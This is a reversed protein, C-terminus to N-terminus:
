SICPYVVVDMTWLIQNRITVTLWDSWWPICYNRDTDLWSRHDIRTLLWTLNHDISDGYFGGYFVMFGYFCTLTLNSDGYFWWLIVGIDRRIDRRASRRASSWEATLMRQGPEAAHTCAEMSACSGDVSLTSVCIYSWCIYMYKYMAHIYKYIVIIKIIIIIIHLSLLSLLLLLLSISLLLSLLLLYYYYIYIYITM